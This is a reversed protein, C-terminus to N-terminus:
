ITTHIECSKEHLTSMLNTATREEEEEEEEEKERRRRKKKSKLIKSSPNSLPFNKLINSQLM